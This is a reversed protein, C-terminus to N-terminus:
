RPTNAPDQDLITINGWDMCHQLNWIHEAIASKETEAKHVADKHQNIRTSLHLGTEGIYVYDCDKCPISYVVGSRDDKAIPDKQHSLLQRLTNFTRFTTQINHKQLM